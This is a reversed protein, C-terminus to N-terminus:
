SYVHIHRPYISFLRLLNVELGKCRLNAIVGSEAKSDLVLHPISEAKYSHNCSPCRGCAITMRRRFKFRERDGQQVRGIVKRAPKRSVVM